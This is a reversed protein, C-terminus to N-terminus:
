YFRVYEENILRKKSLKKLVNEYIENLILDYENGHNYDQYRMKSLTAETDIWLFEDHSDASDFQQNCAKTSRTNCDLEFVSM